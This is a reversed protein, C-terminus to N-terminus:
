TGAGWSRLLFTTTGRPHSGKKTKRNQKKLQGRVSGLQRTPWSEEFGSEFM